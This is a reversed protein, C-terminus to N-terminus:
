WPCAAGSASGPAARTWSLEVAAVIIESASFALVHNQSFMGSMSSSSNKQQQAPIGSHCVPLRQFASSLALV